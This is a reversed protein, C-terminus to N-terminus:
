NEIVKIDLQDLDVRRNQARGEETDNPAVPRTEGYGEVFLRYRSVGKDILYRRVNEARLLSLMLNYDARGQADTHGAVEVVIEAQGNLGKAAEDLMAMAAATLEASGKDFRINDLVIKAGVVCGKADVTAGAPTTPCADSDDPVGDGDSDAVAAPATAPCGNADVPVGEPTGPCLDLPDSVGDHDSDVSCDARGTVPDVVKVGCDEAAVPPAVPEAVKGGLPYWLGVRFQTDLLFDADPVSQDNFQGVLRVETRLALGSSALPFALGAGAALAPATKDDHNVYDYVLGVGGLAYPIFSPLYSELGEAQDWGFLGFHYVYSAFLGYQKDDPGVDANRSLGYLDLELGASPNALPIQISINGGFGDDSARDNDPLEYLAGGGIVYPSEAAQQAYATTTMATSAWLLAVAVARKM